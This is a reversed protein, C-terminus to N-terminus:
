YNDTHIHWDYQVDYVAGHEEIRLTKPHDLEPTQGRESDYILTLVRPSFSENELGRGIALILEDWALGALAGAAAGVATGIGPLVATGAVAGASIAAATIQERATSGLKDKLVIFAEGVDQSDHEVLLLTVVFARPYDAPRSLDFEVLVHPNQAWPGRIADSSVDGITPAQIMEPAVQGDPRVTVTASDFAVASMYVEDNAGQLLADTSDHESFGRIRFQLKSPPSSLPPRTPALVDQPELGLGLRVLDMNSLSQLTAVGQRTQAEIEVILTNRQDDASMTGLEQDNRIKGERLFVMVAGMGALAFDDFAQYNPENSYRALEVILTNRMDDLSMGNLEAHTRFRGALLVGRLYTPLRLARGFDQHGLGRLVLDLNSWGQLSSGLHTQADSEVIMTNRLDDDSMTRLQSESRIRADRLYVYIAGLGALAEANMSQLRQIPSPSLPGPTQKTRGALEVILTNRQDDASMQNLEHHTRFKGTLLVGRIASM